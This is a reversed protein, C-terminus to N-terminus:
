EKKVPNERAYKEWVSFVKLEHPTLKDSTFEFEAKLWTANPIIKVEYMVLPCEKKESFAKDYQFITGKKDCRLYGIFISTKTGDNTSIQKSSQFRRYSISNITTDPLDELNSDPVLTTYTYFNWGGDVHISDAQTYKRIM